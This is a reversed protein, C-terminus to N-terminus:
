CLNNLRDVYNKSENTILQIGKNITLDIIYKMQLHKFHLIDKTCELYGVIILSLYQVLFSGRQVREDRIFTDEGQLQTWLFLSDDGIIFHNTDTKWLYVSTLQCSRGQTTALLCGGDSCVIAMHQEVRKGNRKVTKM